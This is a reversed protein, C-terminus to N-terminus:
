RFHNRLPNNLRLIALWRRGSWTPGRAVLRVDRQLRTMALSMNQIRGESVSQVYGMPIMREGHASLIGRRAPLHALLPDTRGCCDIIIKDTGSAHGFIGM